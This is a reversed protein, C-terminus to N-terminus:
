SADFTPFYTHVQDLEEQILIIYVLSHLHTLPPNEKPAFSSSGLKIQNGHVDLAQEM